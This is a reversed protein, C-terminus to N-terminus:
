AQLYCETLPCHGFLKHKSFQKLLYIQKCDTEEFNTLIKLYKIYLIVYFLLKPQTLRLQHSDAPLFHLYKKM